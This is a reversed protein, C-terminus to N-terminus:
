PLIKGGSIDWAQGLAGEFFKELQAYDELNGIWGIHLDPRLVVVAGKTRDVGWTSYATGDCYRDYPVEIDAMVKSADWGFRSHNPGRMAEHFELLPHDKASTHIAILNIMSAERGRDVDSRDYDSAETPFCYPYRDYLLSKGQNRNLLQDCFEDVRNKQEKAGIDGALLVIHFQGKAKLRASTWYTQGDAQMVVRAHTFSEGVLLNSSATQTSLSRSVLASDPYELIYSDSFNRFEHYRQIIVGPEVLAKNFLTTWNRDYWVLRKAVPLREMEYSDLFARRNLQSPASVALAIKWGLNWADQASVNLGLGILPSNNHLADGCLFIRATEAHTATETYRQGLSYASWWQCKEFDFQYPQFAEKVRTRAQELTVGARTADKGDEGFPIYIRLLGKERPIMLMTGYTTQVGTPRRVDALYHHTLLEKHCELTLV